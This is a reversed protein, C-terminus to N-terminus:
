KHEDNNWAPCHQKHYHSGPQITVAIKNPIATQEIDKMKTKDLDLGYVEFKRSEKLLDFIARGVEGLGVVLTKEKLL